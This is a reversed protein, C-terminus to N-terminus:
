MRLCPACRTDLAAKGQCGSYSWAGPYTLGAYSSDHLCGDISSGLEPCWPVKRSGREPICILLTCHMSVDQQSGIGIRRNDWASPTPLVREAYACGLSKQTRSPEYGLVIISADCMYGTLTANRELFRKRANKQRLGTGLYSLERLRRKARRGSSTLDFMYRISFRSPMRLAAASGCRNVSVYRSGLRGWRGTAGAHSCGSVCGVVPAWEDLGKCPEQKQRPEEADTSSYHDLIEEAPHHFPVVFENQRCLHAKTKRKERPRKSRDM